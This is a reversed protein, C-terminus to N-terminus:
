TRTQFVRALARVGATVNVRGDASKEFWIRADHETEIITLLAESEGVPAFFPMSWGGHGNRTMLLSFPAGAGLHWVGQNKALAVAPADVGTPRFAGPLACSTVTSRGALATIRCADETLEYRVTLEGAPGRRSVLLSRDGQVEVGGTEFAVASPARDGVYGETAEEPGVRFDVADRGSGDALCTETDLVWRSRSARNVLAVSAGDESVHLEMASSRITPM